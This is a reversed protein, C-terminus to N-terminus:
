ELGLKRQWWGKRSPKAADAESAAKAEAGTVPSVVVRELVPESSASSVRRAKPADDVVSAVVAAPTAPPPTAVPASDPVSPKDM